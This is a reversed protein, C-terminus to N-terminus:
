NEIFNKKGRFGLEADFVSDWISTCYLVTICLYCYKLIKNKKM